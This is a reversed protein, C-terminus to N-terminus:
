RLSGLFSAMVANHCPQQRDSLVLHVTEIGLEDDQHDARVVQAPVGDLLDGLSHLGDNGLVLLPTGVGM